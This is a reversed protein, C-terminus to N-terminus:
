ELDSSVPPGPKPRFSQGRVGMWLGVCVVAGLSRLGAFFVPQLGENVVKIVVQNFGLLASFLVLSVAGFTDISPRM